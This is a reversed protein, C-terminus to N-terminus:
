NGYLLVVAHAEIAKGEGVPGLGESTKAKVSVKDIPITLDFAINTRMANIYDKLRPKELIITTDVNVVRGGSKKALFMAKKLLTRSDADKWEESEPPFHTGIDGLAAAGLIADILAHYLVDGDSHAVAGREFPIPRGGIILKKGDQLKHIDWGTGIRM